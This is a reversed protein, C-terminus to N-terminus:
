AYHAESVFGISREAYQACETFARVRLQGVGRRGFLHLERACPAERRACALQPLAANSRQGAFFPGRTTLESLSERVSISARAPYVAANRDYEPPLAQGPAAGRRAASPPRRSASSPRLGPLRTSM